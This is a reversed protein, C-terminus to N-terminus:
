SFNRAREIRWRAAAKVCSARVDHWNASRLLWQQARGRKAGLDSTMQGVDSVLRLRINPQRRCPHSSAGSRAAARSLEICSTLVWLIVATAVLRYLYCDM